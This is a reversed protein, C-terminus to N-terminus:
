AEKQQFQNVKRDWRIHERLKKVYKVSTPMAVSNPALALTIDIPLHPQRGYMLFYLSFGM